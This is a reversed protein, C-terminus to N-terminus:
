FPFIDGKLDLLQFVEPKFRFLVAPRGRGRTGSRKGTQEVIGLETIKRRFNRKDIVKGLIVEYLQQLEALTFTDPLLEFGVATYAMKGRLRSRAVQVIEAHGSILKPQDAEKFWAVAQADAPRDLKLLPSPVLGFYSIEVIRLEKTSTPFAFTYLQELYDVKVGTLEQTIREAAKHLPENYAPEGGPLAWRTRDHRAFLTKLAGESITMLVVDVAVGLQRSM